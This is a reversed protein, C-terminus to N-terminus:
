NPHPQDMVNTGLQLRRPRPQANWEAFAKQTPNGESDFQGTQLAYFSVQVADLDHTLAALNADPTYASLLSLLESTLNSPNGQGIRQLFGEDLGPVFPPLNNVVGWSESGTADENYVAQKYFPLSQVGIAGDSILNLRARTTLDAVYPYALTAGYAGASLGTVTVDEARGFDIRYQQRGNDKLWQLVALVNDTGRHKITWKVAADPSIPLAYETDRSGWHIDGSCYPIFVKTYNSYPNDKNSSDFVGQSSALGESTEDLEVTYTSRNSLPSGICTFADWCGGGGDLASYLRSSM